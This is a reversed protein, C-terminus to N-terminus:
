DRGREKGDTREKEKDERLLLINIDVCVSSQTTRLSSQGIRLGGEMTGAVTPLSKIEM